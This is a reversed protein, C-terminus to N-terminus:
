NGDIRNQLEMITTQSIACLKQDNDNGVQVESQCITLNRGQKIVKSKGILYDGKAPSILNIKFEVTLVTSTDKMLSFAAYGAANDAIAAVIGAHFFGHQQTLNESFPLSIECYGPAIQKISANIYQMFKQRSFSEAVRQAYNTDTPTTM